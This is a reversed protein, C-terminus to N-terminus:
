TKRELYQLKSDNFDGWWHPAYYRVRIFGKNEYCTPQSIFTNSEEFILNNKECLDNMIENRWEIEKPLYIGYILYFVVCFLTLIIISIIIRKM